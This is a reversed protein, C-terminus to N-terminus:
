TLTSDKLPRECRANRDTDHTLEQRWGVPLLSMQLRREKEVQAGRMGEREEYTVRRDDADSENQDVKPSPPAATVRKNKFLRLKAPKGKNPWGEIVWM